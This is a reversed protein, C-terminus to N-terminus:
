YNYEDLKGSIHNLSLRKIINNSKSQLSIVLSTNQNIIDGNPTYNVLVGNIDYLFAKGSVSEFLVYVPKAGVDGVADQSTNTAMLNNSIYRVTDGNSVIQSINSSVPCGKSIYSSTLVLNGNVLSINNNPNYNPFQSATLIDGYEPFQSCWKFMRYSGDIEIRSFDIGLGFLWRETSSREVFMASRQTNKIDQRLTAISESLSIASNLGSFTGFGIGMIVIIISMVVLMELLSYSSYKLYVTNSKM